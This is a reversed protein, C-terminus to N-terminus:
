KQVVLYAKEIQNIVRSIEFHSFVRKKGNRILSTRFKNNELLHEIANGWEHENDVLIATKGNECVDWIGSINSAIVPVELAMYEALVLGFAEWRSSLLGINFTSIHEPISDYELWGTVTVKSQLNNLKIFHDFNVRTNNDVMSDGVLLFHMDPYKSLLGPLAKLITIPSKQEDIRGVMGLILADNPINYMNLVKSRQENKSVSTFRNVDIGNNIVMLKDGKCVGYSIADVKESNSVAIILATRKSLVKEIYIYFKKKLFSTNMKFSWGHPVYILPIKKSFNVIRTIAGAKSSHVHLIDPSFCNIIKNIKLATQLDNWLHIKRSFSIFKTEIKYKKFYEKITSNSDSTSLVLIIEYKEPDMRQLTMKLYELVGGLSQSVHLVKIAENKINM